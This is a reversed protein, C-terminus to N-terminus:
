ASATEALKRFGYSINDFLTTQEDRLPLFIRRIKEFEKGVFCACFTLIWLSWGFSDLLSIELLQNV